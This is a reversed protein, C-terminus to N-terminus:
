GDAVPHEVVRGPPDPQRGLLARHPHHELVQAQEGVQPGAVVHGEPGPGPAPRAGLGIGGGDGPQVRTPRPACAPRGGAALEGAALGLPHGQGPGQGGLGLDEQEVLGEGGEVGGGPGLDTAVELAAGPRSRRSGGHDDGVVGDVGEGEGVPQHHEVLPRTIWSPAGASTARRGREAQTASSTPRM